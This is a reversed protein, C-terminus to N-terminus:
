NPSHSCDSNLHLSIFNNSSHFYSSTLASSLFQTLSQFYLTSFPLRWGKTQQYQSHTVWTACQYERAKTGNKGGLAQTKLAHHHLASVEDCSFFDTLVCMGKPPTWVLFVSVTCLFFFSWSLPHFFSCHSISSPSIQLPSLTNNAHSRRDGSLHHAKSVLEHSSKKAARATINPWMCARTSSARSPNSRPEWSSRSGKWTSATMTPSSTSPSAWTDSAGQTVVGCTETTLYRWCVTGAPHPEVQLSVLDELVIFTRKEWNPSILTSLLM